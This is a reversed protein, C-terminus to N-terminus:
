DMIMRLFSSSEDEDENSINKKTKEKEMDDMRVNKFRDFTFGPSVSEEEESLTAAPSKLNIRAITPEDLNENKVEDFNFSFTRSVQENKSSKEQNQFLSSSKKGFSKKADDFGTAIVTYSVYDNMSEKQVCGFIMNSEAGTAEFIVNNGDYIEQMTLNSSGTVNLLVSKAGKISIGDLLPSSIAKQAAEVARNEGSAIGCGMIAIGSQNMVSRVDAFDVNILGEVTIIDAIGRTAEYLLENPKDFATFANTNKDIISILRDNPIVILSDVFQKLEQIGAESNLMRQKGEWRFPKTVIAVVLAGLSKAISAVIPAAGTGTGGGMGSTVFVMDAGSLVEAIKERDEEAAKRGVNPDAGAGLGKTMKTGIQVKHQADNSELVQADTNVAVYEVGNLGRKIMSEVANCGGGGVGVVKLSAGSSKSRDITAFNAM